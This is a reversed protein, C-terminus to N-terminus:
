ASGGMKLLATGAEILLFSNLHFAKYIRTQIHNKYKKQEPLIYFEMM